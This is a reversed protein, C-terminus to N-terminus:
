NERKPLMPELANSYFSRSLAHPPRLLPTRLRCNSAQPTTRQQRLFDDSEKPPENGQPCATLLPLGAQGPGRYTHYRYVEGSEDYLFSLTRHDAIPKEQLKRTSRRPSADGQSQPQTPPVRNLQPARRPRIRRRRFVALLLTTHRNLSSTTSDGRFCRSLRGRAPMKRM